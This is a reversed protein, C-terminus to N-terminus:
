EEWSVHNRKVKAPCGVLLSNKEEMKIGCVLSNCGIISEDTIVSNKLITCHSAIWVHNGIIIEGKESLKEGNKIIKHGDTDRISVNWGILCNNGFKIEKESQIEINRNAYFNKGVNLIGNDIYINFGEAITANGNFIIKGGKRTSLYSKNESVFNAGSFGLKIM